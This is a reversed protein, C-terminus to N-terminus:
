STGVLNSFSSFLLTYWKKNIAPSLPIYPLVQEAWPLKDACHRQQGQHRPDGAQMQRRLAIRKEDAWWM